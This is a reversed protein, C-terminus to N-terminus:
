IDAKHVNLAISVALSTNSAPPTVALAIGTGKPMVVFTDFTSTIEDKFVFSPGPSGGTVTASTQGIESSTTILTRSSGFNSNIDIAESGSGSGLGTPNITVAVSCFDTTGGTSANATFVIRDLVLDFSEVNQFWLVASSAANPSVM